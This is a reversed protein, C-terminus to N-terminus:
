VFNIDKKYIKAVREIDIERYYERYNSHKSANEYGLPLISKVGIKKCITSWDEELNEYKGIFDMGLNGQSDLLYKYQPMQPHVIQAPTDQDYYLAHEEEIRSLFDTFSIKKMNNLKKILSKDISDGYKMVGEITIGEREINLTQYYHYYSVLWDWPNRVFAVKYYNKFIEPSISKKIELLSEHKFMVATPSTRKQNNNFYRAYCDFSYLKECISTTATKPIRVFIAKLHHYVPM